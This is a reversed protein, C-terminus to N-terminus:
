PTRFGFRGTSRVIIELAVDGDTESLYRVTVRVKPKLNKGIKTQSTIQFVHQEPTHGLVTRSVTVETSTLSTVTGAFFKPKPAPTNPTETAQQAFLLSGLVVASLLLRVTRNWM